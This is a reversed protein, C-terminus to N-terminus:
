EMGKPLFGAPARNSASVNDHYHMWQFKDALGRNRAGKNNKRQDPPLVPASPPKGAGAGDATEATTDVVPVVVVDDGVAASPSPPPLTSFTLAYSLPPGWSCTHACM